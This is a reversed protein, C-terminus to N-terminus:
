SRAMSTGLFVAFSDFGITQKINKPRCETDSSLPVEVNGDATVNWGLEACLKKAKEEKLDLWSRLLDFSLSRYTISVTYCVYRRISETFGTIGEKFEPDNNLEEWFKLFSCSELLDHLFIVQKLREDEQKEPAILCLALHFVNEPLRTLCKILITLVIDVNYRDPNFQYRHM